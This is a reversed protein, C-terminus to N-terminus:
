MPRTERLVLYMTCFYLFVYLVVFRSMTLSVVAFCTSCYYSNTCNNVKEDNSPGLGKSMLGQNMISGGTDETCVGSGLRIDKSSRDVLNFQVLRDNTPLMYEVPPLMALVHHIKWDPVTRLPSPLSSVGGLWFDPGRNARLSFKQQTYNSM